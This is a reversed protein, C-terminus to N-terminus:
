SKADKFQMYAFFAFIFILDIALSRLLKSSMGNEWHLGVLSVVSCVELLISVWFFCRVYKLMIDHNTCAMIVACLLTGLAIVAYVPESYMAKAFILVLFASPLILKGQNKGVDYLSYLFCLYVVGDILLM